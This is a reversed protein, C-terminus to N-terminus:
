INANKGNFINISEKKTYNCNMVKNISHKSHEELKALAEVLSDIYEYLYDENYSESSSTQYKEM